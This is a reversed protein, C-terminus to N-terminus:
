PAATDITGEIIIPDGDIMDDTGQQGFEKARETSEDAGAKDAFIGISVWSHQDDDAVVFYSVFGPVGEVIPVFGEAVSRSVESASHEPKVKRVRAVAYTGRLSARAQPTASQATAQGGLAILGLLALSGGGITRLADRRTGDIGSTM